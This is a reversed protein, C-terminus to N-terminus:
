ADLYGALLGDIGLERARAAALHGTQPNWHMATYYDRRLDELPVTVGRLPGDDLLGDGQGMMRPHPKFDAPAIGERWNFAARLNQIREGALLLDKETMGWGTLANLLELWPLGGTLNTFMCLGLGNMVQHANSFHAQAVGKGETGKWSVSTEKAEVANPLPFAANFTENWSATGATNM